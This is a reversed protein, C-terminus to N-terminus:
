RLSLAVEWSHGRGQERPRAETGRHAIPAWVQLSVISTTTDKIEDATKKTKGM